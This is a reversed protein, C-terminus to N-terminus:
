NARRGPCDPNERDFSDRADASKVVVRCALCKWGALKPPVFHFHWTHETPIKPEPEGFGTLANYTERFEEEISSREWRRIETGDYSRLICKVIKLKTNIVNDEVWAEANRMDAIDWALAAHSNGIEADHFEMLLM